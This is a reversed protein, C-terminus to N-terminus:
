EIMRLMYSTACLITLPIPNGPHVKMKGSNSMSLASMDFAAIVNKSPYQYLMFDKSFMAGKWAYVVGM